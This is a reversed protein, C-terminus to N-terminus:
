CQHQRQDQLEEKTGNQQYDRDPQSTTLQSLTPHSSTKTPCHLSIRSLAALISCSRNAAPATGNKGRGRAMNVKSGCDLLEVRLPRIRPCERFCRHADRRDQRPICHRPPKQLASFQDQASSVMCRAAPNKECCQRSMVFPFVVEDALRMGYAAEPQM